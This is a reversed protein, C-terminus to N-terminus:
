LHYGRPATPDSQCAVAGNLDTLSRRERETTTAAAATARRSETRPFLAVFLLAFMFMVGIGARVPNTLYM